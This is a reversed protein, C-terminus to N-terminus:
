WCGEWGARRGATTPSCPRLHDPVFELEQCFGPERDTLDKVIDLITEIDRGDAVWDAVRPKRGTAQGIVSLGFAHFTSARIGTADIGAAKLRRDIRDQLEGAAKNNFALLLIRDPTTFGRDLAYATRAVMVSTKGSGAGALLLVRNDYTIVADAQETTLPQTEIKDFLEKRDRREAHRIELNVTKILGELSRDLAEIAALQEDTGHARIMQVTADSLTPKAHGLTEVVEQPIWRQEARASAIRTLLIVRWQVAEASLAQVRTSLMAARIENAQPKTLGRLRLPRADLHIFWRFWSRRLGVHDLDAAAFDREVDGRVRLGRRDIIVTWGTGEWSAPETAPASAKGPSM